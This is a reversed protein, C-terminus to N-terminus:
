SAVGPRTHGQRTIGLYKKACDAISDWTNIVLGLENQLEVKIMGKDSYYKNLSKIFIRGDEKIELNSPGSLLRNIDNQLVESDIVEASNPNSTLSNM